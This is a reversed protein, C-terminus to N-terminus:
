HAFLVSCPKLMIPLVILGLALFLALALRLCLWFLFPALEGVITGAVPPVVSITSPLIARILVNTSIAGHIPVLIGITPFGLCISM